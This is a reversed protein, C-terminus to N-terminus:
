RPAAAPSRPASAASTRRPHGRAHARRVHEPVRRARGPDIARGVPLTDGERLLRDSTAASCSSTSSASCRAPGSSRRPQRGPHGEAERRDEADRAAGVGQDGPLMVADMDSVIGIRFGGERVENGPLLNAGNPLEIKVEQTPVFPLGRNAVWALVTAVNVVLLTVAGVLVPNALSPDAGRRRNMPRAPLRPAPRRRRSRRCPKPSRPTRSRSSCGDLPAPRRPPGPRPRRDRRAVPPRPEPTAPARRDATAADIARTRAPARRADDRDPRAPRHRAPQARPDRPLVAQGSGAAAAADAYQACNNDLFASVKLLYSNADYVNTAQSQAFIYRLVAEFGTYGKGGPSRPDAEVAFDRDHLHNLSIDLNDAVEPLDDAFEALEAIRPRGARVAPLGARAAGALTRMAPRSAESFPGLTDLFRTLAAPRPRRADCAGAAPPRRDRRAAADDPAARAPLDPLAPVARAARAQRAASVQPPTARRARRLPTVDERNDALRTSSTRPRRRDPRPDDGAARGARGAGQGDRAAGPQRPPDDRQPREGRGALAAGLEGLLISLRERTPRRWINNLLDAPVTSGTQEVPIRAGPALKEAATGPLCDVFYEGILSQPRTECFVDTRLDGYGKPPSRSGSWRATARATSRSRAHDQGRARRRGQRRRGRDARLRQRARRHLAPQRGRRRRRRARHVRRRPRRRHRAAIVLVRADNM